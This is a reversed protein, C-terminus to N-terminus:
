LQNAIVVLVVDIMTTIRRILILGKGCHSYHVYTITCRRLLISSIGQWCLYASAVGALLVAWSSCRRTLPFAVLVNNIIIM